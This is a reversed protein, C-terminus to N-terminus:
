QEVICYQPAVELIKRALEPDRVIILSSRYKVESGDKLIIKQGFQHNKVFRWETKVGSVVPAPPEVVEADTGAITEPKAPIVAERAQTPAPSPPAVVVPAQAEELIDAASKAAAQEVRVSAETPTEEEPPPSEFGAPPAEPAEAADPPPAPPSSPIETAPSAESVEPTSEGLIDAASKIEKPM